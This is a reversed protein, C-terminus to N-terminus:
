ELKSIIGNIEDVEVLNKVIETAAAGMSACDASRKHAKAMIDNMVKKQNEATYKQLYIKFSNSLAEEMQFVARHANSGCIQMVETSSLARFQAASLHSQAFVSQAALIIVFIFSHRM